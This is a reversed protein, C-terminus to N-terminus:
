DFRFVSLVFITFLMILQVAYYLDMRSKVSSLEDSSKSGTTLIRKLKINQPAFPLANLIILLVLIMKIRFWLQSDVVGHLIAVMTIGTLITLVGGIGTIRGFTLTTSNIIIAKNKDTEICSWFQRSIIYNMLTTGGPLVVGTIHLV